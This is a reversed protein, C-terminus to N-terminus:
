ASYRKIIELSQNVYSGGFLNAHVLLPYLQCLTVREKWEPQLPFHHQYAEFVNKGFGGFLLMMAIDMERFGYYVAPDILAPMGSFSVMYNGSWLDGHLLSPAEEPLIDYIKKELSDAQDRINERFIKHQIGKEIQPRIRQNIFFDNWQPTKRNSQSLNGIFNDYEFGFQADSILHMEALHIGFIRDFNEVPKGSQIYEMLIFSFNDSQGTLLVHPIYFPSKTLEALGRKEAEFFDAGQNKNIKICYQENLDGKDRILYVENISGGSLKQVSDITFDTPMLERLTNQLTTWM